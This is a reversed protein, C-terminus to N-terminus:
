ALVEEARRLADGFTRLGLNGDAVWDWNEPLAHTRKWTGDLSYTDPTVKAETFGYSKLYQCIVCNYSDCYAYKKNPDQKRLWNIFNQNNIIPLSM